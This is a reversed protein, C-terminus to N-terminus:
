GLPSFTGGGGTTVLKNAVIAEHRVSYALDQNSAAVYFNGTQPSYSLAAWDNGGSATPMIVTPLDWYPTFLCGSVFGEIQDGCQSSFADGVPYPQTPSTKQREEQPVPREQVGQLPTGSTRDLLYLWGTKATAAIGNRPQGNVVTDFLVPSNSSDYDWLEHHV